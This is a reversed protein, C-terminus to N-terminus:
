SLRVWPFVDWGHWQDQDPSSLVYLYEGDPKVRDSDDVGAIQNNTGSADLRTLRIPVDSAFAVDREIGFDYWGRHGQYSATGFSHQYRDVAVHILQQQLQEPWLRESRM